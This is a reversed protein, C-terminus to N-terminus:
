AGAAQFMAMQLPVPLEIALFADRPYLYDEGEEDIVRILGRAEASADALVEYIKRTQLSEEHDDNRVCVVFQRSTNMMAITKVNTIEGVITFKV